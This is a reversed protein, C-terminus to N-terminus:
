YVTQGDTERSTQKGIIETQWARRRKKNMPRHTETHKDIDTYNTDTWRDTQKGTQKYSNMSNYNRMLWPVWEARYLPHDLIM